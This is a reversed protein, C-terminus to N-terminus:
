SAVAAKAELADLIESHQPPVTIALVVGDDTRHVEFAFFSCCESERAALDRVTAELRDPGALHVILSTPSRREARRAATALLDDFEKLRIPREATPLTCATPIDFAM